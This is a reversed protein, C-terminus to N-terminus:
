IDAHSFDTWILICIVFRTKWEVIRGDTRGDTQGAWLAVAFTMSTTLYARVYQPIILLPLQGERRREPSRKLGPQHAPAPTPEMVASKLSVGLM